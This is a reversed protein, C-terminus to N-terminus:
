SIENVKAHLLNFTTTRFYSIDEAYTFLDKSCSKYMRCGTLSIEELIKTIARNLKLGCNKGWM